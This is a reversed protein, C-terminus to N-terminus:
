VALTLSDNMWYVERSWTKGNKGCMAKVTRLEKFPLWEAGNAECVIVQGPRSKCWQALHEFDIVNYKYYRGHSGSYPPDIFYTAETNSLDAYSANTIKWHRIYKLQSAVRERIKEGWFQGPSPDSLMRKNPQKKPVTSANNVWFGILAKAADCVDLDDVHTIQIPLQRIEDESVHILYDWLGAIVPDVDNLVVDCSHHLLSYCASGAFPEVITSNKPAPYFKSARWKAGYFSFFPRLRPISNM